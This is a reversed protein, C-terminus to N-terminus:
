RVPRREYDSASLTVTVGPRRPAEIARPPAGVVSPAQKNYTAAPIAVFTPPPATAALLARAAHRRYAWCGALVVLALLSLGVATAITILVADLILTATHVIATEQTGILVFAGVAVVAFGIGGGGGKPCHHPCVGM